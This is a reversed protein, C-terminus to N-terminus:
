IGLRIQTISINLHTFLAIHDSNRLENEKAKAM